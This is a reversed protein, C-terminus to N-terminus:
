ETCGFVCEWHDFPRFDGTAANEGPGLTRGQRFVGSKRQRSGDGPEPAFSGNGQPLSRAQEPSAPLPLAPSFDFVEEAEVEGGGVGVM